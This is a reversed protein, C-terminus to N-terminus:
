DIPPNDGDQVSACAHVVCRQVLIDRAVKQTHRMTLTSKPPERLMRKTEGWSYAVALVASCSGQGGLAGGCSRQFTALCSVLTAFAASQAALVFRVFFTRVRLITAVGTKAFRCASSPVFSVRTLMEACVETVHGFKLKSVLPVRKEGVVNSLWGFTSTAAALRQLNPLPTSRRAGIGCRHRGSFTQSPKQPGMTQLRRLGVRTAGQSSAALFLGSHM